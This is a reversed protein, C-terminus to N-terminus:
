SNEGRSKDVEKEMGCFEEKFEKSIRTLRPNMAYVFIRFTILSAFIWVLMWVLM